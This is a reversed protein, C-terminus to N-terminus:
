DLTILEKVGSIDSKKVSISFSQYKMDATGFGGPEVTKVVVYAKDGSTYVNNVTLQISGSGRIIRRTIILANEAFFAEGYLAREKELQESHYDSNYIEKMLDIYRDFEEKSVILHDTSDDYSASIPSLVTYEIAEADKCHYEINPIYALRFGGEVSINLKEILPESSKIEEMKDSIEQTFDDMDFKIMIMKIASLPSIFAQPFLNEMGHKEIISDAVNKETLIYYCLVSPEDNPENFYLKDPNEKSKQDLYDETSKEWDLIFQSVDLPESDTQQKTEAPSQTTEPTGKQTLEDTLETTEDAASDNCSICAFVTCLCLFLLFLKKMNVEKLHQANSM